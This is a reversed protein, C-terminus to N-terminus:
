DWELAARRVRFCSHAMNAVKSVDIGIRVAVGREVHVVRMHTKMTTSRDETSTKHDM